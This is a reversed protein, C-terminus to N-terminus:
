VSPAEETMGDNARLLLCGQPGTKTDLRRTTALEESPDTGGNQFASVSRLPKAEKSQIDAKTVRRENTEPLHPGPIPTPCPTSRTDCGKTENERNRQIDVSKGPELFQAPIDQPKRAPQRHVPDLLGSGDKCNDQRLHDKVLKHSSEKSSRCNERSNDSPPDLKTERNRPTPPHDQVLLISLNNAQKRSRANNSSKSCSVSKSKSEPKLSSFSLHVYREQSAGRGRAQGRGQGRGRRGRPVGRYGGWEPRDFRPPEEPFPRRESKFKDHRHGKLRAGLALLGAKTEEKEEQIKKPFSTGFLVGEERHKDFRRILDRAEGLDRTITHTMKVRRAHRIAVNAQGVLMYVLVFGQPFNFQGYAIVLSVAWKTHPRIDSRTIQLKLFPITICSM